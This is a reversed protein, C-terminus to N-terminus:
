KIRYKDILVTFFFNPFDIFYRKWLRMPEQILRLLWELHVIQLIKPARIFKRSYFSFYAGVTINIRTNLSKYYKDLWIEQKPVGLGIMLVDACSRNIEDVIYDHSNSFGDIQGVSEIKPYEIKFRSKVSDLVDITDGYLFLKMKHKHFNILIDNIINTSILKQFSKIRKRLLVKLTFFVGSSDPYAITSYNTFINLQNKRLYNLIRFDCYLLNLKDNNTIAKEVISVIQEHSYLPLQINSL